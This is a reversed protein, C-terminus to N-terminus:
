VLQTNYVVIRSGDGSVYLRYDVDVIIRHPRQLGDSTTNHVLVLDGRPSFVDIENRTYDAAFVFGRLDSCVDNPKWREKSNKLGSHTFKQLEKGAVDVVHICGRGRWSCVLLEGKGNACMAVIPAKVPCDWESTLNGSTSRFAKLKNGPLNGVVFKDKLTTLCFSFVVDEDPPTNSLVIKSIIDIDKTIIYLINQSICAISGHTAAIREPMISADFQRNHPQKGDKLLNKLKGNGRDSVLIRDSDYFCLGKIEVDQSDRKVATDFTHHLSLSVQVPRNVPVNVPRKRKKVMDSYTSPVSSYVDVITNCSTRKNFGAQPRAWADADDETNEKQPHLHGVVDNMKTDKGMDGGMTYKTIQTSVNAENYVNLSSESIDTDSGNVENNSSSHRKQLDANMQAQKNLTYFGKPVYIKKRSQNNSADDLDSADESPVTEPQSSKTKKVSAMVNNDPKIPDDCVDDLDIEERVDTSDLKSDSINVCSGIQDSTVALSYAETNQANDDINFVEQTEKGYAATNINDINFAEQTEKEYVHTNINDINAPYSATTNDNKLLMYNASSITECVETVTTDSTTSEVTTQLTFIPWHPTQVSVQVAPAEHSECVRFMSEETNHVGELGDQLTSCLLVLDSDDACLANSCTILTDRALKICTKIIESAIALEEKHNAFVSSVTEAITQREAVVQQIIADSEAFVKEILNCESMELRKIADLARNRELELDSLRVTREEIISHISEKAIESAEKLTCRDHDTHDFLACQMCLLLKCSKCYLSMERGNHKECVTKRFVVLETGSTVPSPNDLPVIRHSVTSSSASHGTSCVSCLLDFCDLCRYSCPSVEGKLICVSCSKGADSSLDNKSGTVSVSLCTPLKCTPCIAVEAGETTESSKTVCARCHTHGCLFLIQDGDISSCLNCTTVDIFSPSDEM